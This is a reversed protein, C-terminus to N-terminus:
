ARECGPFGALVRNGKYELEKLLGIESSYYGFITMKRIRAFFREAATGPHQAEPALLNLIKTRVAPAADLFRKGGHQMSFAEFADMEEKWSAQHSADSNVLVLDIYRGVEAKMAGPSHDDAPIILEALTAVVEHEGPNFFQLAQLRPATRIAHLHAQAMGVRSSLVGMTLLALMTRRDAEIDSM